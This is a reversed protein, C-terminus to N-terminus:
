RAADAHVVFAVHNDIHIDGALAGSTDGLLPFVDVRARSGAMTDAPGSMPSVETQAPPGVNTDVPQPRQVDGDNTGPNSRKSM